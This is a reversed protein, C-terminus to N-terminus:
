DWWFFWTTSDVLIKALREVTMTGQFVIDDCYAMQEKAIQFAEDYTTPPNKVFMEITSGDVWVLEAGYTEYWHKIVMAHECPFPCANWGGYQIYIPIHHFPIQPFFVLWAKGGSRELTNFFSFRHVPQPEPMAEAMMEDDEENEFDYDMWRENLWSSFNLSEIKKLDNEIETTDGSFIQDDDNFGQPLLVAPVDSVVERALKWAELAMEGSEFAYYQVPQNNIQMQGCVGSEVFDLNNQKLASEFNEM